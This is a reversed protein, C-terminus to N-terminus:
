QQSSLHAGGHRVKKWQSPTEQVNKGPGAEFWSEGSSLRGSLHCVYAM